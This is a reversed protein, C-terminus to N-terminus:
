TDWRKILKILHKQKLTWHYNILSWYRGFTGVKVWLCLKFISILFLKKKNCTFFKGLIYIKMAVKWCNSKSEQRYNPSRWSRWFHINIEGDCIYAKIGSIKAEEQRSNQCLDLGSGLSVCVVAPMEDFIGSMTYWVQLDIVCHDLCLCEVICIHWGM